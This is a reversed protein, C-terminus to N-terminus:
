RRRELYLAYVSAMLEWDTMVCPSGDEALMVGRLETGRASSAYWCPMEMWRCRANPGDAAPFPCPSHLVMCEPVGCLSVHLTVVGHEGGLVLVTEEPDDQVHRVLASM